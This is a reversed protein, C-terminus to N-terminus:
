GRALLGELRSKLGARDLTALQTKDLGTDLRALLERALAEGRGKELESWRELLDQVLAASDPDLRSSEALRGFAGLSRTAKHEDLVLVTGAALDGIRVRQATFMCCVLGVLYFVPLSDILRFLSRMLLPGASPTAGELTVIRAGAMRKGPTRGRMLLELIPHYLFYILVAPLVFAAPFVTANFKPGLVRGIVWGTLVWALAVLLRIHWDIIFAYARTGPGAVQLTIDVGTLGRINLEDAAV